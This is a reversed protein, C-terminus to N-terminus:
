SVAAALPLASPLLGRYQLRLKDTILAIFESNTPKGKGSNVTYGFLSNIVELDGRDWAIEIAHRIAREVRSATTSFRKAVTPYLQKTVCELMESDNVSLTIAERLYHYGKIHAPIGIQHIIDTIVIELTESPNQSPRPPMASRRVAAILDTIRAGLATIEFPRLMYYANPASMVEHEIYPNSYSATVIFVPRRKLEHSAKRILEVADMGPMVAEIIVVDFSEESIAAFIENGDKRRVSTTFGCGELANSIQVGTDISDDGILISIGENKNNMQNEERIKTIVM